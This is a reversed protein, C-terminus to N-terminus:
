YINFSIIIRETDSQVPKCQHMLASPFFIIDGESVEPVYELLNGDIFNNFPAFFSTAQHDDGFQAYFIASYGLAGHNHIQHYQNARYKQAWLMRINITHPYVKNFEDLAPKLVEIVDKAYPAFTNSNEVAEYQRHYDTFHNDYEELELLSIIRDKEDSWTDIKTHFIPITFANLSEM